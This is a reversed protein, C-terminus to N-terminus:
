KLKLRFPFQMTCPTGSCLAPTYRTMLLVSGAFQTMDKNNVGGFDEVKTAKGDPGVTVAMNLEGKAQLVNQAKKIAGFVPKLGEAPFPPEDNEPMSEYLARFEAKQEPTLQQWTKNLPISSNWRLEKKILTGTNSSAENMVQTPANDPLPGTGHQAYASSAACAAILLCLKSAKM